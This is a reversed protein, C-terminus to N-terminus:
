GSRGRPRELDYVFLRTSAYVLKGNRPAPVAQGDPVHVAPRRPRLPHRRPPRAACRETRRPHTAGQDRARGGAEPADLRPRARRPGAAPPAVHLPVGLVPRHRGRRQPRGAPQRLRPRPPEGRQRPRLLRPLGPRPRAGRSGDRRRPSRCRRDRRDAAGQEVAPRANARAPPPRLVRGPQLRHPRARDMRLDPRPDLGRPRRPRLPVPRLPVAARRPGRPARRPRRRRRAVDPRPRRAGLRGEDPSVGRIGANGRARQQSPRPRDRGGDRRRGRRRGDVRRVPRDVGAPARPRLRAVGRSRAPRPRLQLPAGRRARRPRVRPHGRSPADGRRPARHGGRVAGGPHAVAGRREAARAVRAHQADDARRRVPGRRRSRGHRGLARRHPRVGRPDCALRVGLHRPPAGDGPCRRADSLRRLRGPGGPRAPVLRRGADLLSQRHPAGARARDGPRLAPVRGLGRRPTPHRRDRAGAPRRRARHGRRARAVHPLRGPPARRSPRRRVALRDAGRARGRRPRRPDDSRRARPRRGLPERAPDDDGRLRRDARRAGRRPSAPAGPAPARTRRTRSRDAVRM